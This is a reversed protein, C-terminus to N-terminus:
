LGACRRWSVGGSCTGYSGSLNDSCTGIKDNTKGNSLFLDMAQIDDADLDNDQDVDCAAACKYNGSVGQWLDVCAKLDRHDVDMDHDVDGVMFITSSSSFVKLTVKYPDSQQQSGTSEKVKLELNHTGTSTCNAVTLRFKGTPGTAFTACSPLGTSTGTTLSAGEPDKAPYLVKMTESVKIGLDTPGSTILPPLDGVPNINADLWSKINSNYL